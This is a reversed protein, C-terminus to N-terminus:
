RARGWGCIAVGRANHARIQRRTAATDSSHYTIPVATQCFRAADVQPAPAPQCWMIVLLGLCTTM